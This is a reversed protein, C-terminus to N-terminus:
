HTRCATGGNAPDLLHCRAQRGDSMRHLSPLETRCRDFVRDCRPAFRCGAPAAILDPAEGPIAQLAGETVDPDPVSRVLAVTYPHLPDELVADVPGEEQIQGAYMVIVRTAIARVVGFDHTIVVLPLRLDRNKRKLLLLIKAQVGVDLATTPEDAILLRPRCALAIALGVRQCMGGSLQHPYSALVRDVDAFGVESLATVATDAAASVDAGRNHRRISEILQSRITFSPDLAGRPNQFIMGIKGGRVQELERPGLSLVDSGDILVEGEVYRAPPTAVLKLISLATVTKGSGSEGVMALIDGVSVDFSVGDVARVVGAPTYFWTKLHRVSLVSPRGTVEAAQAAVAESLAVERRMARNPYSM